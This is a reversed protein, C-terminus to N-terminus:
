PLKKGSDTVFINEKNKRLGVYIINWYKAGTFNPHKNWIERAVVFEEASNLVLLRSGESLCIRRAEDWTQAVTHLKYNKHNPV